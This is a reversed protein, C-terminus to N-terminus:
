LLEEEPLSAKCDLRLACGCVCTGLEEIVRASILQGCGGCRFATGEIPMRTFACRRGRGSEVGDAYRSAIRFAAQEQGNRTIRVFDGPLISQIRGVVQVGNVYARLDAEDPLQLFDDEGYSVVYLPESLDVWRAEVESGESEVSMRQFAVTAAM